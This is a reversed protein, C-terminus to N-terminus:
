PSLLLAPARGRRRYGTVLLLALLAFGPEVTSCGCGTVPMMPNTGGDPIGADVKRIGADPAGADVVVPAATATATFLVPALGPFDVASARLQQPGAVGLIWSGVLGIGLNSTRVDGDTVSGPTATFLVRQSVYRSGFADRLTVSPALEVATGEVATQGSGAIAALTPPLKRFWMLGPNGVSNGDDDAWFCWREDPAGGDAAYQPTIAFGELNSTSPSDVEVQRQLTLGAALTAVELFNGGTNHSIFLRGSSRDFALGSSESRSTQLTAILTRGANNAQDLDVAYVQGGNQHAILFLGGSGFASVPWGADVLSEDPVFTLGEPGLNAVQPPIVGALAWTRVLTANGAVSYKRVAGGTEDLVFVSPEDLKGQTIGEFDSNISPYSAAIKFGGDAAENLAWVGGPARAVWLTRTLPNWFLDSVQQEFGAALPTLDVAQSGIEGPWPAASAVGAMLVVAWGLRRM